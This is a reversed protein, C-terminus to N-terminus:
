SSSGDLIRLVLEGFCVFCRSVKAVPDWGIIVGRYGFRRHHVVQGVRFKVHAPRPSRVAASGVTPVVYCEM